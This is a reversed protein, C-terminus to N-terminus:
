LEYTNANIIIQTLAVMPNFHWRPTDINITVRVDWHFLSHSNNQNNIIIVYGPTSYRPWVCVQIFIKLGDVYALGAM